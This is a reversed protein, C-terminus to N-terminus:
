FIFEVGTAWGQCSDKAIQIFCAHFYYNPPFRCFVFAELVDM